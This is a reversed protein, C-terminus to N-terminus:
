FYLNVMPQICERAKEHVWRDHGYIDVVRYELKYPRKMQISALATEDVRQRDGPHIVRQYTRRRNQIFDSAPYGTLQKVADSIYHMTGELDCACRYIVGPINAVLTRYKEESEKVASEARRRETIDRGEPILVVM